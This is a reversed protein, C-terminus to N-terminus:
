MEHASDGALLDVAHQLVPKVIAFCETVAKPSGPFNIILCKGLTGAIGRSLMAMPTNKLSEQRIAESIGSIEKEIVSRTAEPANDRSSIGTGGTTIILNAKRSIDRLTQSIIEPDDSIIRYDLIQAGIDELCQLLKKGSEDNNKNRTDSITLAAACLKNM